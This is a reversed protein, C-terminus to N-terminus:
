PAHLSARRALEGRQVKGLATRPLSDVFMWHQPIKFRAIRGELHARLESEDIRVGPWAVVAVAVVEGWRADPMGFAVSELVNAHQSLADEIEAPLINEGGSIILEKARGVITYSGDADQRALDGTHFWGDADCSPDDPWYRQAVNPARVLVEGAGDRVADLRVEVDAAPWGCSGAKRMADEPGLAISFPGTETSGYVNCVPLGRAHFAEILRAPITNSGAWVARLSSLDTSDWRPHEILAKMTVPVQLTLTPRQQEIAELAADPVFRPQLIVHAGSYLAPLTQICLGGVHFLPLMALVRDERTIRQAQAAIRMNALLNAQTHVAAKPSGTTGSTFVLLVLADPKSRDVAGAFDGPAIAEASTRAAIGHRQALDRAADAWAADHVVMRPTCHRLQAGWEPPALRFNLPLFIAGIRALAFLLVIQAPDNLGLWAIRDGAQVGWEHQLRSAADDIQAALQSYSLVGKDHSIAVAAAERAAQIQVVSAFPVAASAM